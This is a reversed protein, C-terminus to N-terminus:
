NLPPAVGPQNTPDFGMVPTSSGFSMGSPPPMGKNQSSIGGFSIFSPNMFNGMQPNMMPNMGGSYLSQYYQMYMQQQQMKLAEEM